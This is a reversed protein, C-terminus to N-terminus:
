NLVETVKGYIQKTWGNIHGKNNGIRADREKNLAKVIHTFYRGHVKCFVIDGVKIEELNCPSLRHKQGSKILPVM